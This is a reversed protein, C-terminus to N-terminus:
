YDKYSDDTIFQGAFNPHPIGKKYKKRYSYKILTPTFLIASYQFFTKLDIKFMFSKKIYEKAKKYDGKLIYYNAVEKCLSFLIEKSLFDKHKEIIIEKSITYNKVNSMLSNHNRAVKLLIENVYGYHYKKSVRMALETDEAARLREDFYGVEDLVSKKILVTVTPPTHPLHSGYIFDVEFNDNQRDEGIKVGNKIDIFEMGCYVAAVDEPSKLLMDVQKELKDRYWEDDSDQFAIIEGTSFEIGRNRSRSPGLNVKNRIYKLREDRIESIRQETSDTSADDIVLLELNKYSQNLVSNVSRQILHARNYTPIIVTVKPNNKM